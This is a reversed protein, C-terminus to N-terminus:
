ENAPDCGRRRRRALRRWGLLVGVLGTLALTSPEPVPIPTLVLGDTPGGDFYGAAVIQGADNIASASLIDWGRPVLSNLNHMSTDFVFGVQNTDAADTYTYGVVVGLADIGTAESNTGGLTGLDQLSIPQGNASSRFAHTAVNGATSSYGAVQGSANIALGSAASGASGLNGLNDATSLTGNATTRFVDGNSTGTVQGAANMAFGNSDGGNFAGLDATADFVGGPTTRVAHLDPGNGPLFAGGSVQGIDNVGGVFYIGVQGLITWTSLDGSATTLVAQNNANVGVVQGSANIAFGEGAGLYTIQGSASTRFAMGVGGVVAYGTTQGSANIAVPGVAGLNLVSYRVPQAAAPLSTALALTLTAIPRM